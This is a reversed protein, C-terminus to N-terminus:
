KKAKEITSFVNEIVTLAEQEDAGDLKVTVTTKPRVSLAMLSIISTLDAVSTGYHMEAIKLNLKIIQGAILSSPRAHLGLESVMYIEKEIM